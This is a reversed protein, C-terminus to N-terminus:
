RTFWTLKRPIVHALVTSVIIAWRFALAVAFVVYNFHGHTFTLATELDM